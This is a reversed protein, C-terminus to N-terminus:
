LKKKFLSAMGTPREMFETLVCKQQIFSCKSIRTTGFEAIKHKPFFSLSLHLMMEVMSKEFWRLHYFSFPIVSKFDMDQIFFFSTKMGFALTVRILVVDLVIFDFWILTTSSSFGFYFTLWHVALKCCFRVSFPWLHTPGIVFSSSISLFALSVFSLLIIM